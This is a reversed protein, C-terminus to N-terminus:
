NLHRSLYWVRVLFAASFFIALFAWDRCVYFFVPIGVLFICLYSNRVIRLVLSSWVSRIDMLFPRNYFICFSPVSHFLTGGVLFFDARLCFTMMLLLYNPSCFFEFYYCCSSLGSCRRLMILSRRVLLIWLQCCIVLLMSVVNGIECCWLPPYFSCCTCLNWHYSSYFSNTPFVVVVTFVFLVVSWSGSNIVFAFMSKNIPGSQIFPSCIVILAFVSSLLVWLM